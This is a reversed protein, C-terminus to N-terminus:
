TVEELLGYSNRKLTIVNDKSLNNIVGDNAMATLGKELRVMEAPSCNMTDITSGVYMVTHIGTPLISCRIGVGIDEKTYYTYHKHFTWTKNSM